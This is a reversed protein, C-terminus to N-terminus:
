LITNKVSLKEKAFFRLIIKLNTLIGIASHVVYQIETSIRLIALNSNTLM